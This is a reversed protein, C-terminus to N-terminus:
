RTSPGKSTVRTPKTIVNFFNRSQFNAVFDQMVGVSDLKFLDFNFDGTIIITKNESCLQHLIDDMKNNFALADSKPRRYVLGVIINKTQTKIEIFITEIFDHMMLLDQRLFSDIDDKVYMAVGGKLTTNNNTYMNFGPLTYLHQISSSLKTECFSMIDFAQPVIDLILSDLKKKISNINYCFINLHNLPRVKFESPFSGPFIYECPPNRYGLSQILFNDPDYQRTNIDSNYTFSEINMSNITHLPLKDENSFLIDLTEDDVNFFPLQDLFNAM